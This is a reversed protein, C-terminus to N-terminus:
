VKETLRHNRHGFGVVLFQLDKVWAATSTYVPIEHLISTPDQKAAMLRESATEFRTDM